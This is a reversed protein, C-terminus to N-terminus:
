PLLTLHNEPKKSNLLLNRNTNPYSPKTYHFLRSTKKNAMKHYCIRLLKIFPHNKVKKQYVSKIADIDNTNNTQCHHCKIYGAEIIEFKIVGVREWKHKCYQTQKKHISHTLLNALNDQRLLSIWSAIGWKIAKTKILPNKSILPKTQWCQTL